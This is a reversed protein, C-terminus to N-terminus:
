LLGAIRDGCGDADACVETYLDRIRGHGGVEPPDGIAFQFDHRLASVNVGIPAMGPIKPSSPHNPLTKKAAAISGNNDLDRLNPPLICRTASIPIRDRRHPQAM